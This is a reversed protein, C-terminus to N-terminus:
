IKSSSISKVTPIMERFRALMDFKTSNRSLRFKCTKRPMPNPHLLVIKSSVFTVYLVYEHAMLSMLLYIIFISPRSLALHRFDLSLSLIPMIPNSTFSSFVFYPITNRRWILLSWFRAPVPPQLHLAPFPTKPM